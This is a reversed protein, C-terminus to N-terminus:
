LHIIKITKNRKACEKIIHETGHSIGDWFAIICDSYDIIMLNRVLPTNRRYKEYM